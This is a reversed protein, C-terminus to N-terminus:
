TFYDCLDRMFPDFSESFFFFTSLVSSFGIHPLPKLDNALTKGKTGTFLVTIYSLCCHFICNECFYMGMDLTESQLIAFDSSIRQPLLNHVIVYLVCAAGEPSTLGLIVSHRHDSTLAIYICLSTDMCLFSSPCVSRPFLPGLNTLTLVQFYTHTYM